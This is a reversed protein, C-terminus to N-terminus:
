LLSLSEPKLDNDDLATRNTLNEDYNIVAHHHHHHHHHWLNQGADNNEVWFKILDLSLVAQLRNMCQKAGLFWVSNTLHFSECKSYM